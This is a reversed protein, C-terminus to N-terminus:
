GVAGWGRATMLDLAEFPPHYDILVWESEVSLKKFGPVISGNLRSLINPGIVHCSM